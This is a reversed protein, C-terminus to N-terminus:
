VYAGKRKLRGLNFLPEFDLGWHIPMTGTFGNKQVQKYQVSFLWKCWFDNMARQVYLWRVGEHKANEHVVWALWGEQELDKALQWHDTREWQRRARTQAMKRMRTPVDDSFKKDM